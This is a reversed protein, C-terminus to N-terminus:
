KDEEKMIVEIERKANELQSNCYKYLEAGRKYLEISKELSIKNSSNNELKETISELEKLASEFKLEEKKM